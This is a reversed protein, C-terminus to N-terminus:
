KGNFTRTERVEIPAEENKTLKALREIATRANKQRQSTELNYRKRSLANLGWAWAATFRNRYGVLYMVHVALWLIWGIFGSVEVKGMKVVASFRSVTAMSGKDFYEFDGLEAPDKGDAALAIADAAYQGGQIAVQAVGPLGDLNIMDGVIFINKKDGVTLDKNVLVRGGRDTEAGVQDAVLKGLPSGAVGASWIKFRSNIVHEEDGTKYTVSDENVDTVMANLKVTVGIRELQRQAKRGLRKGFPPLVQPAGDLLVIKAASPSFNRYSGQLTRHAMEAIQGALEVGTPGAGVIVFTLIREREAPDNILEAREFADVIRARIELADDVSKMGPAFEAFHDNGFYSQGAGAAVVLSDYSYTRQNDGLTATVTQSEVDIDTVEGMVVSANDQDSLIQRTSPAIEGAALMGTAVQYLLPQFLHHNTRDILTVDVDANKLEKAATIGGFGSGIIVVHHRDSNPRHVTEAM